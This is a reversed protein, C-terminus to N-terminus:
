NMLKNKAILGRELNIISYLFYDKPNIPAGQELRNRIENKLADLDFYKGLLDFRLNKYISEFGVSHLYNTTPAHFGIKKSYVHDAPLFSALFKKLHAKGSEVENSLPNSNEMLDLVPISLAIEILDARLFPAIHELSANKALGDFLSKHQSTVTSYALLRQAQFIDDSIEAIHAYHSRRKQIVSELIERGFSNLLLKYPELNYPTDIKELALEVRLNTLNHFFLPPYKEMGYFLEDPGSGTVLHSFRLEQSQALAFACTPAYTNQIFGIKWLEDLGELYQNQNISILTSRLPYHSLLTSFKDLDNRSHECYMTHLLWLKSKEQLAAVLSSSDVGGSCLLLPHSVNKDWVPLEVRLWDILDEIKHSKSRIRSTFQNEFFGNSDLGHLGSQYGSVWHYVGYEVFDSDTFDKTIIM